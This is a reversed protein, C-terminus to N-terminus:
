SPIIMDFLDSARELLRTAGAQILRERSELGWAVILPRCGAAQALQLDVPMDGVYFARAPEVKLEGLLQLLGRPDPKLCNLDDPGYIKEFFGDLELGRCIQRAMEGPKNTLVALKLAPRQDRLRNLTEMLGPYVRTNDLLHELYIDRFALLLGDVRAEGGGRQGQDLLSSILARAGHGVASSVQDYDPARLGERRFAAQVSLCLDERSDVLTGDLDFIIAEPRRVELKM